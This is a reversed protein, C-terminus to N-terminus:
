HSRVKLEKDCRFIIDKATTNEMITNSNYKFKLVVNDEINDIDDLIPYYALFAIFRLQQYYDLLVPNALHSKNWVKLAYIM